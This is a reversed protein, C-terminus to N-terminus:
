QPLKTRSTGADIFTDVSIRFPWNYKVRPLVDIPRSYSGEVTTHEGGTRVDLQDDSIPIDYLAALELIRAKVDENSMVGRFQTTERVSDVWRYHIAYASGVRWTAHALAAVILLRIVAKILSM